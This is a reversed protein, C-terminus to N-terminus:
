RGLARALADLLAASVREPAFDGVRARGAAVLRERLPGEEAAIAVLEALRALPLDDVVLGAAGVTEGVAAEDRAVVPVGHHMAEIVPLGFGEHESLSVFVRAVRYYATRAAASVHGPLEVGELGWAAAARALWDRYHPAAVASGVLLLRASRDIARSYYHFLRLLEDQRKNPAVRGVFLLNARGDGLRALVAPDPPREHERPDFPLPVLDVAAAGAAGLQDASFRSPALVTRAPRLLPALDALGRWVIGALLDNAGLFYRPPTVNHFYLGYPLGARRLRDAVASGTAYHFLLLDPRRRRLAPLDFSHADARRQRDVDVAWIRSDVGASALMTAFALCADSAADGSAFNPLIQDIRAGALRASGPSRAPPDGVVPEAVTTV